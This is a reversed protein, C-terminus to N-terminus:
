APVPEPLAAANARTSRWITKPLLGIGIIVIQSLVFAMLAMGEGSTFGYSHLGIGLMNVGFWSWATVINGVVLLNMLGRERVLGGWRAHLVIANWLVIILAGNEKPDWGWFRGWSQDAWIGGLVTGVFSFLVAFCIIAYAIKSFAKNIEPTLSPTFVGKFIYLVACIGAVFTAAYGLTVAVVHTALWFNSDLVARMMEMTDGALSLHHAIILTGFGIISSIMLGIGYKWFVEVLICLLCAIVGIFIASSYLNTVPPRGEQIMRFVLGGLHVAFALVVLWFAGRRLPEFREPDFWYVLVCIGAFIYIYMSKLFPMYANFFQEHATKKLEPDFAPLLASRLDGVAKNFFAVEGNKYASAMRAYTKLVAVTEVDRGGTRATDLLAAGTRKWEMGARAAAPPPILAPPEVQSMTDFRQIDEMIKQFAEKDFPKGAQKNRVAEVGTPIMQQYAAQEAAWDKANQPQLTNQLRMYIAVANWLKNVSNDFPNRSKAEIASVRRSEDQLEQLKPSLQSWSYHKGDQHQAKDAEPLALLSKLEPHDLRFVPWQDAQHPNMMMAMAWETASIIKPHDFIGKWPELNATQKERLQLLSNRALSDIPQIRGNTLVPLRGFEQTAFTDPKDHPALFLGALAWLLFPLVVILPIWKKM